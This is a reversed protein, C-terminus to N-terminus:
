KGTGNGGGTRENQARWQRRMEEILREAAAPRRKATIRMKLEAIREPNCYGLELWRRAECELRHREHSM